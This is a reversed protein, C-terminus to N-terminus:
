FIGGPIFGNKLEGGCKPCRIQDCQMHLPYEAGCKQCTYLNYQTTADQIVRHCRVCRTGEPLKTLM